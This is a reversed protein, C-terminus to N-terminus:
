KQALRIVVIPPSADARIMSLASTRETARETRLRCPRKLLDAVVLLPGAIFILWCWLSGQGCSYLISVAGFTGLFILGNVVGWFRSPFAAFAGVSSVFYAAARGDGWYKLDLHHCGDQPAISEIWLDTVDGLLSAVYVAVGFGALLGRRRDQAAVLGALLVPQAVNLIMAVRSPAVESEGDRLARWVAAEPLQMLLCFQWYALFLWAPSAMRRFYLFALTNLLSGAVFTGYSVSESWCM